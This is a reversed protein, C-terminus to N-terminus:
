RSNWESNHEEGHAKKTASVFNRLQIEIESGFLPYVVVVNKIQCFHLNAILRFNLLLKM